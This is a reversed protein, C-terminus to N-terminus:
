EKKEKPAAELAKEAEESVIKLTIKSVVGEKLKIVVDHVGVEKIAHKLAIARKEIAVNAQEQLLNAIDHASVSGYMNGDHDVKVITTITVGELASAFAEAEAKEQMALKKREEQLKAQMALARPTAALALKRPLLFNRAFGPRVSVIDGSRGLDDVDEVLLLKTAM